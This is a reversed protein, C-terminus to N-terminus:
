GCKVMHTKLNYKYKIVKNCFACVSQGEDSHTLFHRRLKDVSSFIAFCEDCQKKRIEPNDSMKTSVPENTKKGRRSSLKKNEAQNNAQKEGLNGINRDQGELQIANKRRNRKPRKPNADSTSPVPEAPTQTKRLRGM